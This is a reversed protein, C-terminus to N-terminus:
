EKRNLAPTSSAPMKAATLPSRREDELVIEIECTLGESAYDLRSNAFVTKLLSTGFGFQKPKTVPPGGRERWRFNLKNSGDGTIIVWSLAVAGHESSLAGYKAANTALEHLALSFNQAYQAGVILNIGDITVRDGYPELELRAIEKLDVGNWNSKTLQHNTRALAQLRSEFAMKAVALPYEGSLSKHAISQVVALLNNSRHQVERILIEEIQEARKRELYDAAQRVLLDMLRSKQETPRHRRDFHVSIAGLLVGSSSRLPTSVVAQVDEALLVNLSPHGAFIESNTVDEVVLQQGSRMAAGCASGEHRVAEFYKLFFEHFGHQAAIVLVDAHLDYLQINGKKADSIAIAVNLIEGLCKKIDKGDRVLLNGLENLRTMDRLDTSVNAALIEVRRREADARDILTRLWHVLIIGTASGFAFTGLGVIADPTLDFSYFPPLFIYWLVGGSLLSTFIAPGLGAFFTVLLVAPLFLIFGRDSSLWVDMGLRISASVVFAAFAIGYRWWLNTARWRVPWKQVESVAYLGSVGPVLPGALLLNWFADYRV